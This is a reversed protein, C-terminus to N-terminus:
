RPRRLRLLMTLSGSVEGVQRFGVREYLRRAFNDPEVSLSLAGVEQGRATDILEELLCAGIGRGRWGPLVGMSVEPTAADVFGYGPDSEPFLRAWAAGVCQEGDLAVVGLDGVRPWGSVYHALEPQSLVEDVSGVPQDPRWYAAVVLMEVLFDADTAEARRVPLSVLGHHSTLSGQYGITSPQASPAFWSTTAARSWHEAAVTPLHRPRNTSCRGPPRVASM